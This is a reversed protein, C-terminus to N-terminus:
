RGFLAEKARANVGRQMDAETLLSSLDLVSYGDSLLVTDRDDLRSALDSYFVDCSLDLKNIYYRPLGFSKGQYIIGSSEMLSRNALAWRLGLGQSQLQFPFPLDLKRYISYQTAIKKRVYGCVYAIAGPFVPDMSIRDGLGWANIIYQLDRPDIGFVIAHYHPRMTQTGYEGCAFYRIRRPEILRRLRKFFLVLDRKVLKGGEPIHDDDYTLTLFGERDWFQQEHLLRLTWEKSKAARCCLCRGCPVKYDAGTSSSLTIPNSCVM